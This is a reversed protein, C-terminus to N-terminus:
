SIANVIEAVFQISLWIFSAEATLTVYPVLGKCDVSINCHMSPFSNFPANLCKETVGKLILHSSQM